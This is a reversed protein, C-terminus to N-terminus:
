PRRVGVTRGGTSRWWKLCLWTSCSCTTSSSRRRVDGYGLDRGVRAGRDLSEPVAEEVHGSAVAEHLLGVHRARELEGVCAERELRGARAVVETALREEGVRGEFIARQRLHSKANM